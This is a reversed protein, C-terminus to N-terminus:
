NNGCYVGGSELKYQIAIKRTGTSTEVAEGNCTANQFVYIAHNFTGRTTAAETDILESAASPNGDSDLAAVNAITPNTEPLARSTTTAETIDKCNSDSSAKSLDACVTGIMYWEGDPDIYEDDGNVWLYNLLFNAYATKLDSDSTKGTGPLKGRNNTQYQTIQTQFRALDDRRQTDRQSRQLAPLALFVMLFILGGIALVLAVEIITFGKKQTQQKLM